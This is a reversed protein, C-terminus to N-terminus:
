KKGKQTVILLDVRVQLTTVEEAQKGHKEKLAKLEQSAKDRAKTVAEMEEEGVQANALAIANAAASKKVETLERVADSVFM